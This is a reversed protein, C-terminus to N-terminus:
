EPPEFRIMGGLKRPGSPWALENRLKNSVHHKAWGHGELVDLVYLVDSVTTIYEDLDATEFDGQGSHAVTNRIEVMTQVSRLTPKLKEWFGIDNGRAEHMSPVYKQLLKHVPPSQLNEMLWSTDPAIRSIHSKVGAELAAVLMLIGSRSSTRGLNIAERLLEHGIPENSSENEWIEAFDAERESNWQIGALMMSSNDVYPDSVVRYIEGSIKWYLVDYQVPKHPAGINQRWCLLSIFGDIDDRLRKRAARCLEQLDKPYLKFPPSYNAAINGLEDIAEKGYAFHPLRIANPGYQRFRHNAIGDVFEVQENTAAMSATAKWVLEDGLGPKNNGGAPGVGIEIPRGASSRFLRRYQNLGFKVGTTRAHLLFDIKADASMFLGLAMDTLM